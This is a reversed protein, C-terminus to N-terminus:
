ATWISVLHHAQPSDLHHQHHHPSHSQNHTQPLISARHQRQTHPISGNHQLTPHHVRRHPHPLSLTSPIAQRHELSLWSHILHCSTNVDIQNYSLHARIALHLETPTLKTSKFQTPQISLTLLSAAFPHTHSHMSDTFDGDM